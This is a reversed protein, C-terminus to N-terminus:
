WYQPFWHYLEYPIRRPREAYWAHLETPGRSTAESPLHHGLGRATEQFAGWMAPSYRAQERAQVAHSLEHRAVDPWWFSPLAQSVAVTERRPFLRPIVSGQSLYVGTPRGPHRRIRYPVEAWWPVGTPQGVERAVQQGYPTLGRVVREWAAERWPEEPPAAGPEEPEDGPPSPEITHEYYETWSAM